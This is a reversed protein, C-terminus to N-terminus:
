KSPPVPLSQQTQQGQRLQDALYQRYEPESMQGRQRQLDDGPRPAPLNGSQGYLKRLFDLLSNGGEGAREILRMGPLSRALDEGVYKDAV